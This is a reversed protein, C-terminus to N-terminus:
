PFDELMIRPSVEDRLYSILVLTKQEDSKQELGNQKIFSNFNVLKMNTRQALAGGLSSKGSSKPGILFFIQPLM